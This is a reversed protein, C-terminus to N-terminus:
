RGNRRLALAETLGIRDVPKTLFHDFGAERARARHDEQGWGSLAVLVVGAGWPEARIRRALEFGDMGPMRLDVLMTEPPTQRAARLGDEGSPASRVDSHGLAELLLTLTQAADANDDVVLIRRSASSAEAPSPGSPDPLASAPALAPLRVTFQSGRGTGESRAVLNGGHLEVLTRALTLGIGMGSSPTQSAEDLQTFLDFIKELMEAPIGLGDDQVTIVADRGERRLTLAIHGHPPTYRAANSLLNGLVQTLRTADAELVLPEGPLHVALEHGGADILPRAAAMADRVVEVLDITALRLQLRGGTIRSVELLDDV